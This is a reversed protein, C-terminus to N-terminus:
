SWIADARVWEAAPHAHVFEVLRACFRWVTEDQVLHHTLLGTPEDADRYGCRRARLHQVLIAIALWTGIFGREHRWHVPDLHANVQLLGPAPHASKRVRMTSLGYLGIAPLDTVVDSDVRNWPPVMVPLFRAGFAQQLIERGAGLDRLLLDRPRAGGLELNLAGARAHSLHAFGHQLVDINACTELRAALGDELRAPIAALALPVETSGAIDLLRELEPTAATADDDRWWFAATLGTEGWSDLERGLWSWAAEALRSM